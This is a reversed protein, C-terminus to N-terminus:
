SFIYSLINENFIGNPECPIFEFAIQLAAVKQDLAQNLTEAITKLAALNSNQRDSDKAKNM